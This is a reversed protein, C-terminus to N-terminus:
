AIDAGLIQSKPKKRANALEAGRLDILEGMEVVLVFHSEDREVFVRTMHEPEHAQLVLEVFLGRFERDQYARPELTVPEAPQQHPADDIVGFFFTQPAHIAIHQDFVRGHQLHAGFETEVCCSMPDFM